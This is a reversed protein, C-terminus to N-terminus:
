QQESLPAIPTEFDRSNMILMDFAQPSADTYDTTQRSAKGDKPIM